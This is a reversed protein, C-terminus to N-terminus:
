SPHPAWVATRTVAGVASAARARVAVRYRHGTRTVLLFSAGSASARKVPVYPHGDVQYWVDYSTIAGGHAGLGELRDQVDRDM